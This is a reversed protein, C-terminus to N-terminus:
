DSGRMFQDAHGDPWGDGALWDKFGTKDPQDLGEIFLYKRPIDGPHAWAGNTSAGGLRTPQDGKLTGPIFDGSETMDRKRIKVNVTSDKPLNRVIGVAGNIGKVTADWMFVHQHHGLKESGSSLKIELSEATKLGNANLSLRVADLGKDQKDVAVHTYEPAHKEGAPSRQVSISRGHGCDAGHKHADRQLVRSVAANGVSRQLARVAGGPTLAAGPSLLAPNPIATATRPALRKTEAGAHAKESDQAHM